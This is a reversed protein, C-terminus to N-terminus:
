PPSPAAEDSRVPADAKVSDVCQRVEAVGALEVEVYSRDIREMQAVIMQVTTCDGDRAAKRARDYLDDLDDRPDRPPAPARPPLEPAPSWERHVAMGLLGAAGLTAGTPIAALGALALVLFPPCAPSDGCGPGASGPSSLRDFVAGAVLLAAAGTLMTVGGIKATRRSGAYTMCGGLTMVLVVVAAVRQM